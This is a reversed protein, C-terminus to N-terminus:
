IEIEVQQLNPATGTIAGDKVFVRAGNSYATAATATVVGGGLLQVHYAGSYPSSIVTGVLKPTSPLLARFLELLNM